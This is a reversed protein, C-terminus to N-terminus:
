DGFQMMRVETARFTDGEFDGRMYVQMHEELSEPGAKTDEYSNGEDPSTRIYFHTDEHYVVRVLESDELKKKSSPSSSSLSGDELIKFSVEAVSFSDEEIKRVKGVYDAEVMEAIEPDLLKRGAKKSCATLPLCLVFAAGLTLLVHTRKNKM